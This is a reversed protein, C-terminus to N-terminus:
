GHLKKALFLFLLLPIKNIVTRWGTILTLINNKRNLRVKSPTAM